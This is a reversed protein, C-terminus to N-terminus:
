WFSFKNLATVNGFIMLHSAYLQNWWRSWNWVPKAVCWCRRWCPDVCRLRGTRPGPLEGPGCFKWFESSWYSGFFITGGRVSCDTSWATRPDRTMPWDVIINGHHFKMILGNQVEKLPYNSRVWELTEIQSQSVGFFLPWLNNVFRIISDRFEKKVFIYCQCCFQFLSDIKTVM